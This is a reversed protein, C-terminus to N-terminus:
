RLSKLQSPLAPRAGATEWNLERKKLVQWTGPATPPM